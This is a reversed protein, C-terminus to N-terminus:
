QVPADGAGGAKVVEPEKIGDLIVDRRATSMAIQRGKLWHVLNMHELWNVPRGGFIAEYAGAGLIVDIQKGLVRCWAAMKAASEGPAALDPEDEACRELREMEALDGARLTFEHGNIEVREELPLFDFRM